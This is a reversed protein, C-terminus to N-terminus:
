RYRDPWYYSVAERNVSEKWKEDFRRAVSPADRLIEGLGMEVHPQAAAALKALHQEVEEWRDTLGGADLLVVRSHVVGFNRLHADVSFVGRRWAARRLELLRELWIEVQEFLGKAALVAVRDYLTGEVRETAESVTLYGPWGSIRIRTPPFTITEPVVSTGALHKVALHEGRTDRHAYLRWMDGVHSSYWVGRPVVAVMARAAVRLMRLQRSPHQRMNRGWDGPLHREMRRIMKWAVIMSFIESTTRERKVVWHNSAYVVKGVGEGLRKLRGETLEAPAETMVELLTRM